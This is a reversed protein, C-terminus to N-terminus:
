WGLKDENMYLVRGLMYSCVVVFYGSIINPFVSGFFPIFNLLHGIIYDICTIIFIGSVMPYYVFALIELPLNLFILILHDGELINKAQNFAGEEIAIKDFPTIKGSSIM